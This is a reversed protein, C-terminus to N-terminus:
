KAGTADDRMVYREGHSDVLTIGECKGIGTFTYGHTGDSAWFTCTHRAVVEFVLLMTLLGVALLPLLFRM